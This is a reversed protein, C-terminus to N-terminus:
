QIPVPLIAEELWWSFQGQDSNFPKKAAFGNAASFEIGPISVAPLPWNVQETDCDGDPSCCTVPLDVATLNTAITLTLVRDECKGGVTTIVDIDQTFECKQGDRSWKGEVYGPIRTEPYPVTVALDGRRHAITIVIGGDVVIDWTGQQPTKFKIDHDIWLEVPTPSM